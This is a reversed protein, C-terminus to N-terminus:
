EKTWNDIADNVAEEVNRIKIGTALLKKVSLTTGKCPGPIFTKPQKIIGAYTMKSVIERASISGPNCVHYTGFPAKQEIMDLMAKVIDARHCLTNLHDYVQPYQKVKSLYNKNNDQEDFPLRIRAIWHREYDSVIEEAVLKSGVYMGCHQGFGRMPIDTEEYERAEDYLCATSLHMVPIGAEKCAKTVLSPFFVNGKITEKPQKDCLSVSPLPIFAACNVAITVGQVAGAEFFKHSLCEFPWRRQKLQERFESGVYGSSGLLLIM